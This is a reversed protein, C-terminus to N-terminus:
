RTIYHVYAPNKVAGVQKFTWKQDEFLLCVKDPHQLVQQHFIDAVTRDAKSHSRIQIKLRLYKYLARSLLFLGPNTPKINCM